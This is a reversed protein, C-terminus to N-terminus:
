LILYCVAICVIYVVINKTDIEIDMRVYVEGIKERKRERKEHVMLPRRELENNEQMYAYTIFSEHGQRWKM